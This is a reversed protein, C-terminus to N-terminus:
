HEELIQCAVKDFNSVQPFKKLQLAAKWEEGIGMIM